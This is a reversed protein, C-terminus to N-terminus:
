WMCNNYYCLPGRATGSSKVQILNEETLDSTIVLIALIESCPSQSGSM